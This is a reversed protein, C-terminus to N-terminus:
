NIILSYNQYLINRKRFILSILKLYIDTIDMDRVDRMYICRVRKFGLRGFEEVIIGWGRGTKRADIEYVPSSPAALSWWSRMASANMGWM